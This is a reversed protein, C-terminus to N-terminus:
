NPGNARDACLQTSVIMKILPAVSEPVSVRISKKEKTKAMRQARRRAASRAIAALFRVVEQLDVPITIMVDRESPSGEELGRVAEAVEKTSLAKSTLDLVDSAKRNAM